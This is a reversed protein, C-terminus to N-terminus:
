DFQCEGTSDDRAFRPIQTKAQRLHYGYHLCSGLDRAESPIVLPNQYTM